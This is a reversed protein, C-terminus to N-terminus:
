LYSYPKLTLFDEVIMHSNSVQDNKMQHILWGLVENDNALNGEFLHPITNEFYVLAPVEVGYALAEQANDIKVQFL